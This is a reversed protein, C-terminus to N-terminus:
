LLQNKIFDAYWEGSKKITRVQTAYDIYILGFRKSYGKAWEFNDMLSWYYYGKLNVGENIARLCSELHERLYEKRDEDDISLDRQVIDPAAMGNETVYLPIPAYDSAIWTLLEYLGRPYIEWGMETYKADPVPESNIQSLWNMSNDVEGDYLRFRFYYNVGLFDPRSNKIKEMDGPLIVPAVGNNKLVTLIEVPYTGKLSPELFWRNWMGDVMKMKQQAAKSGDMNHVPSLCHVIGVEGSIGLKRFREYAAAHSLNIHHSAQIALKPNKVGPAFAGTQYGGIAIIYAENFTAWKKVRDGYRKFCFEAYDAFADIIGREPWGGKDSLAQPLDWHFLTVNPEIGAKLLEDILNDYFRAGAENIAGTGSPFIRSWSISFRYGKLNMKKMLGIDERYRHYHDTAVDGNDNNIINGPIHSFTDWVSPGRGDENWAGEVQYAATAAGFIFEKPFKEKGM